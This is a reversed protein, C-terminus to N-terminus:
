FQGTELCRRAYEENLTYRYIHGQYNTLIKKRLLESIYMRWRQESFEKKPNQFHWDIKVSKIIQNSTWYDKKRAPNLMSEITFRHEPSLLKISDAYAAGEGKVQKVMVTIECGWEPISFVIQGDHIEVPVPHTYKVIM